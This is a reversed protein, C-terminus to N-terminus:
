GYFGFIRASSSDFICVHGLVIVTRIMFDVRGERELGAVGEMDVRQVGLVLGACVRLGEVVRGRAACRRRAVMKM